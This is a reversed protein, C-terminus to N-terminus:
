IHILSLDTGSHYREKNHQYLVLLGQYPWLSSRIQKLTQAYNILQQTHVNPQNIAHAAPVPQMAKCATSILIVCVLIIM